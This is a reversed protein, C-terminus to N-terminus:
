RGRMRTTRVPHPEGDTLRDAWRLRHKRPLERKTTTGYKHNGYM